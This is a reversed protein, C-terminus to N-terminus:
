LTITHALMQAKLWAKVYKNSAQTMCHHKYIWDCYWRKGEWLEAWKEKSYASRKPPTQWAVKLISEYCDKCGYHVMKVNHSWGTCGSVTCPQSGRKRLKQLRKVEKIDRQINNGTFWRTICDSGIGRVEEENFVNVITYVKHIAHSCKCQEGEENSWQFQKSKLRWQQFVPIGNEECHPQLNAHLIRQNRTMADPNIHQCQVRLLDDIVQSSNTM